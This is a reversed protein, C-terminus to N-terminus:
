KKHVDEFTKLKIRKIPEFFDKGKELREKTFTDRAKKGANEARLIDKAIDEPVPTGSSLLVLREKPCCEVDFPNIYNRIAEQASIM